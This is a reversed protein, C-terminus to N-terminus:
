VKNRLSADVEKGEETLPDICDINGLSPSSIALRIHAVVLLLSFYKAVYEYAAISISVVRLNSSVAYAGPTVHTPVALTVM